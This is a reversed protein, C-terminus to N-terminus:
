QTKNLIIKTVAVQRVDKAVPNSFFLAWITWLLIVKIILILTIELALQGRKDHLKLQRFHNTFFSTM